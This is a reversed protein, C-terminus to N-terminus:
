SFALMPTRWLFGIDVHADIYFHKPRSSAPTTAANIRSATVTVVSGGNAGTAAQRLFNLCVATIV